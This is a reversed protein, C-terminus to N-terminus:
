FILCWKITASAHAMINPGLSPLYSLPISGNGRPFGTLAIMPKNTPTLSCRHCYAALAATQVISALMPPPNI